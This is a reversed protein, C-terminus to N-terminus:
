QQATAKNSERDRADMRQCAHFKGHSTSQTRHFLQEASKGLYERVYNLLLLSVYKVMKAVCYAIYANCKQKKNKFTARQTLKFFNPATDRLVNYIHHNISHVIVVMCWTPNKSSTTRKGGAKNLVMKQIPWNPAFNNLYQRSLLNQENNFHCGYAITANRACTSWRQLTSQTQETCLKTSFLVTSEFIHALELIHWIPKFIGIGPWKQVTQVMSGRLLIIGFSCIVVLM